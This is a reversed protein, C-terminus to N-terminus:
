QVQDTNRDTSRDTSNSRDTSGSNSTSKDTSSTRRHVKSGDGGCAFGCLGSVVVVVPVFSNM